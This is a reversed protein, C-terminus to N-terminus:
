DLCNSIYGDESYAFSHVCESVQQAMELYVLTSARRLVESSKWVPHTATKQFLAHGECRMINPQTVLKSSIAFKTAMFEEAPSVRPSM